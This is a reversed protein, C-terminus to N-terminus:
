LGTIGRYWSLLPSSMSMFADLHLCGDPQRHSLVAGMATGSADTESQYPENENPHALVPEKSISEKIADFSAQQKDGWGWVWSQKVTLPAPWEMIAKVKEKEMSIGEPTIVLRIYTVTTVAFHCKDPNCFLNHKQLHTLVERVHHVHEERNNSFILIDNLYFIVYIDLIDWGYKTRFATKWEDVEKIRLNNYGSRLDLKTFIKAQCLKEILEYQRPLVCSNKITINNLCYYDDALRLRGDSKKVFMVPTGAPSTSLRIKSSALEEDIHEKLAATEAPAMSYIRGWPVEKGEELPIACDYLRHPPLSSFLEEGFVKSFELYEQTVKFIPAGLTINASKGSSSELIKLTMSPWDIDLNAQKLWPVGIIIDLDGMPLCLFASTCSHTEVTIKITCKFREADRVEKGNIGLVQRPSRLETLLLSLQRPYQPDIFNESSGSDILATQCGTTGEIDLSILLSSKIAFCCM